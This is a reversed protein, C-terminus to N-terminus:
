EVAASQDAAVPSVVPPLRIHFGTTQDPFLGDIATPVSGLSRDVDIWLRPHEIREGFVM